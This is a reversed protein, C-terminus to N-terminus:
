GGSRVANEGEKANMNLTCKACSKTQVAWKVSILSPANKNAKRMPLEPRGLTQVTSTLPEAHAM